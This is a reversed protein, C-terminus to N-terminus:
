EVGEFFDSLPMGFAHALKRLTMIGPDDIVGQELRVVCMPRLGSKDAIEEVTLEERLERIRDGLSVMRKAYSTSFFDM